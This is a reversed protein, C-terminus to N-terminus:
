SSLTQSESPLTSPYARAIVVDVGTHHLNLSPTKKVQAHKMLRTTLPRKLSPNTNPVPYSSITMLM